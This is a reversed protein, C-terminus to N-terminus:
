VPETISEELVMGQEQHNGEPKEIRSLEILTIEPPMGVRGPYGIYGFGRNVYLHQNLQSYLGAWQKYKWKVPSWEVNGIRIGFQMGHTHGSLTLDVNSKGLIEAEWHSPDHSLLIKFPEDSVAKHARAFDGYQAFPPKGWNEVGILGFTNDDRSIQVSENLLLHFGMELHAQKLRELNAEKEEQSPWQYYDGYDHNGLISYKGMKAKMQRLIPIWGELEETYDNVMDGTFFLLDADLSNILEIAEKVRDEHGYFSGIHIDSIHVIRLGEFAPPLNPLELREHTTKFNFRGKVMGLLVSTFPIAAFVLGAQTLFRARSIKEANQSFQEPTGSFIKAIGLGIIKGVDETLQFAIFFIKPLYFMLVIGFLLFFRSMLRPNRDQPSLLFSTVVTVVLLATIIWYGTRFTSKLWGPEVNRTVLAIGKFTYLDILLMFIIIALM